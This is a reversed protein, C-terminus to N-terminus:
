FNLVLGHNKMTNLVLCSSFISLTCYQINLVHECRQIECRIGLGKPTTGLSGVRNGGNVPPLKSGPGQM